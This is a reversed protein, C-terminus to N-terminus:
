QKNAEFESELLEYLKHDHWAGDKQFEQLQEGVYRFGLRKILKESAENTSFHSVVVKHLKLDAFAFQLVARGAETMIGQRQYKRSLWYAIEAKNYILARHNRVLGILSFIGAFYGDKIVAWTIGRGSQRREIENRVFALTQSRDTHAEWAMARSIEPDAIDPWLLDADEIGIPRLMLRDTKLIVPEISPISSNM